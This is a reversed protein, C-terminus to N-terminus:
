SSRLGSLSPQQAHTSDHAHSSTAVLTLVQPASRSSQHDQSHARAISLTLAPPASLSHQVRTAILSLQRHQCHTSPNCPSMMGLSRRSEGPVEARQRPTQYQSLAHHEGAMHPVATAQLTSLCRITASIAYAPSLYCM